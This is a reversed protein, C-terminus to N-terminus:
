VDKRRVYKIVVIEFEPPPTNQRVWAVSPKWAHYFVRYPSSSSPNPVTKARASTQTPILRLKDFASELNQSHYCMRIRYHLACEPQSRTGLPAWFVNAEVLKGEVGSGCQSPPDVEVLGLVLNWSEPAPFTSLREM